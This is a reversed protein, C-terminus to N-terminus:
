RSGTEAVCACRGVGKGRQIAPGDALGGVEVAVRGRGVLQRGLAGVLADDNRAAVGVVGLRYTRARARVRLTVKHAVLGDVANVAM